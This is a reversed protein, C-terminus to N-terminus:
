AKGRKSPNQEADIAHQALQLNHRQSVAAVNERRGVRGAVLAQEVLHTHGENRARAASRTVATAPQLVREIQQRHLRLRAPAPRERKRHAKSDAIPEAGHSMGVGNNSHLNERRDATLVGVAGVGLAAQTEEFISVQTRNIVHMEACLM